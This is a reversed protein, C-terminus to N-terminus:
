KCNNNLEDLKNINRIYLKRNKKQKMIALNLIEIKKIIQTITKM